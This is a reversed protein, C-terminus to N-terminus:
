WASLGGTRKAFIVANIMGGRERKSERQGQPRPSLAELFSDISHFKVVGGKGNGLLRVAKGKETLGAAALALDGDVQRERQRCLPFPRNMKEIQIHGLRQEAGAILSDKELCVAYGHM